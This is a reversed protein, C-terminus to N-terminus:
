DMMWRKPALGGLGSPVEGIRGTAAEDVGSFIVIANQLRQCLRSVVYMGTACKLHTWEPCVDCSVADQNSRVTKKCVVCVQM